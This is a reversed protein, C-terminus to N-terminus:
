AQTDRYIADVVQLAAYADDLSGGLTKGEHISRVFEATELDWSDDRFPYEWSTTEPPGMEPLMRYFTLKETGYSGGLGEIHLKGNRGFLEFSFLNKWETCSAHLWAIRGTATRLSLFCNDDGACDWYLTPAFGEVRDIDGLFWRSLDILHMGQDILEGGGSVAPNMRWEKEYGLRGGHGYRARVYMLPGLEGADVLNRSKRFSPHLRHNFGVKVVVKRENRAALLPALERATRAAPKELLVHKGAQIAGLGIEALSDHSTAIVVAECDATTLLTRWDGYAEGGGFKQGLARARAIDTDAVATITHGLATAAAARKQGILGCGIIALKM